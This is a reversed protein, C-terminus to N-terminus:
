NSVYRDLRGGTEGPFYFTYDRFSRFTGQYPSYYRLHPFVLESPLRWCGTGVSGVALGGHAPQPAPLVAPGVTSPSLGDEIGLPTLPLLAQANRPATPFRKYFSISWLHWQTRVTIDESDPMTLLSYFMGALKSAAAGLKYKGFTCFCRPQSCLM